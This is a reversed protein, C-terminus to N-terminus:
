ALPLSIYTPLSPGAGNGYSHTIDPGTLVLVNSKRNLSTQPKNKKRCFFLGTHFFYCSPLCIIVPLAEACAVGSEFEESIVLEGAQKAWIQPSQLTVPNVTSWM